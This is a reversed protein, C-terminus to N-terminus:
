ITTFVFRNLSVKMEIWILVENTVEDYILGDIEGISKDPIDDDDDDDDDEEEEEENDNEDAGDTGDDDGDDDNNEKKSQKKKNKKKSKKLPGKQKPVWLGLNFAARLNRRGDKQCAISYKSKSLDIHRDDQKKLNLKKERLDIEFYCM